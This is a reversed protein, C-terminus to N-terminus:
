PGHGRERGGQHELDRTFLRRLTAHDGGVLAVALPHPQWTLREGRELQGVTAPVASHPLRALRDLRGLLLEERALRLQALRLDLHVALPVEACLNSCIV